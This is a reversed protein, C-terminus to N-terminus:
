ALPSTINSTDAFVGARARAASSASGQRGIGASGPMDIRTFLEHVADARLQDAGAIARGM